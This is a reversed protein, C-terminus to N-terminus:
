TGLLAGPNGSSVGWIMELMIFMVYALVFILGHERRIGEHKM